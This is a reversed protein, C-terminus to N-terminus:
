RSRSRRSAWGNTPKSLSGNVQGNLQGITATPTSGLVGIANATGINTQITPSVNIVPAVNIPVYGGTLCAMEHSSLTQM